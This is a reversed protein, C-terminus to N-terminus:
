PESRDPETGDDTATRASATSDTRSSEDGTDPPAYEYHTEGVLVYYSEREPDEVVRRDSDIAVDVLDGLTATEVGPGTIRDDPIRGRSIWEDFANREHEFESRTADDDPALMGRYRAVVLGGLAAISALVVGVSGLLQGLQGLESTVIADLGTPEEEEVTYIDEVLSISLRERDTAITSNGNDPDMVNTEAVVTLEPHGPVEGQEERYTQIRDRETAIDVTFDTTAPEGSEVTETETELQRTTNWFESQEFETDEWPIWRVRLTIETEVLLEDTRDTEYTSSFEGDLEPTISTFYTERNSLDTGSDYLSNDEQVTARYEFETTGEVSESQAAYTTYAAWGGLLTLFVLLAIVIVFWEDLARRISTTM